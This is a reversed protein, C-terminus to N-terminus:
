KEMLKRLVENEKIIDKEKKRPMVKGVAFSVIMPIAIVAIGIAIVIEFAHNLLTQFALAFAQWPNTVEKIVDATVTQVTDEIVAAGATAGTVTLAVTAPVGLGAVSSAAAGATAGAGTAVDSLTICGQLGFMLVLIAIWRM